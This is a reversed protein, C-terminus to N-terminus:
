NFIGEPKIIYKGFLKNSFNKIFLKFFFLATSEGVGALESIDDATSDRGLIRLCALLKISIPIRCVNRCEFIDEKEVIPLLIDNFLPFPVRFRRKFLRGLYSNSDRVTPDMLMRGWPTNSYDSIKMRVARAERNRLCRFEQIEEVKRKIVPVLLEKILSAYSMQPEGARSVDASQDLELLEM